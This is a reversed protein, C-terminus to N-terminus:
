ILGSARAAALSAGLNHCHKGTLHELQKHASLALSIDDTRQSVEPDCNGSTTELRWIAAVSAAVVQRSAKGQMLVELIAKSTASLVM